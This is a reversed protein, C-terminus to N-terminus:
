SPGARLIAHRLLAYDRHPLPTLPRLLSGGWYRKNRIFGMKPVFLRFDVVRDAGLVVRHEVDIRWPFLGSKWVRSNSEYARSTAISIGCLSSSLRRLAPDEALSASLYIVIHDGPTISHALGRWRARVGIVSEKWIVQMNDLGRVTFLWPTM